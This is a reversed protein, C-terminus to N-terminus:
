PLNNAQRREQVLDVVSSLAVGFVLVLAGVVEIWNRHGPLVSKMFTYQVLLYILIRLSFILSARVGGIIHVAYVNFFCAMAAAVAHAMVLWFQRFTMFLVFPEAYFSILISAVLYITTFYTIKVFPQLDSLLIANVDLSIGFAVGGITCLSYGLIKGKMDVMRSTNITNIHMSDSTNSSLNRVFQYQSLNLHMDIDYQFQFQPQVILLIGFVCVIASLIHFIHIDKKFLVKAQIMATIMSFISVMGMVEALPLYVTSGYSGINFLVYILGLYVLPPIHKRQITFDVGALSGVVIYFPGQFLGRAASLEFDHIAGGLAQVAASCVVGSLMCGIAAAYALLTEFQSHKKITM